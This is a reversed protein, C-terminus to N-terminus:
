ACFRDNKSRKREPLIDSEKQVADYKAECRRKIRQIKSLSMNLEISQKVRSWGRISTEIVAIEEDSLMARKVFENFIAETWIIGKMLVKGKAM